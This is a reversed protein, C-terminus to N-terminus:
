GISSVAWESSAWWNGDIVTANYGMLKLAFYVSCAQPGEYALQVKEPDIGRGNLLEDLERASKISEAEDYVLEAPFVIAGKLHSIGYDSFSARTDLVQIDSRNMQQDLNTQDIMIAPSLNISYNSEIVSPSTNEASGFDKIDGDLISLNEHGLYDLAWFVYSAETLKGWVTVNDSNNVGVERLAVMAKYPDLMSDSQVSKWYINRAGIIHGEIYEEEPRVDLVVLGELESGARILHEAAPYVMVEEIVEAVAEAENEEPENMNSFSMSPSAMSPNTNKEAWAHWEAFNIWDPCTPCWEGSETGASVVFTLMCSQLILVICLIKTMKNTPGSRNGRGMDRDPNTSQVM